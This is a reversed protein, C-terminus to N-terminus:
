GLVLGLGKSATKYQSQIPGIGGPITLNTFKVIRDKRFFLRVPAYKQNKEWYCQICIQIDFLCHHVLEGIGKKREKSKVKYLALEM